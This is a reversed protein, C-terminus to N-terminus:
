AALPTFCDYTFADKVVDSNYTMKPMDLTIVLARRDRAFESVSFWMNKETLLPAFEGFAMDSENEFQIVDNCFADNSLVEAPADYSVIYTGYKESYEYRFSLNPYLNLMKDFWAILRNEIETKNM